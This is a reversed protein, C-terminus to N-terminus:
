FGLEKRLKEKDEASMKGIASLVSGLKSRKDLYEMLAKLSRGSTLLATKVTHHTVGTMRSVANVTIKSRSLLESYISQVRALLEKRQGEDLDNNFFETSNPLLPKPETQCAPETTGEGTFRPQPTALQPQTNVPIM